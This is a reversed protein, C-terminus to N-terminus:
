ARSAGSHMVDGTSGMPNLFVHKAYSTRARKKHFGCRDRELMFFLADINRAGSASSHVVHGSSGVPHLFVLETFCTETRKQRIRVPGV